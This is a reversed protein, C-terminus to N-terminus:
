AAPIVWTAWDECHDFAPLEGRRTKNRYVPYHWGLLMPYERQIRGGWGYLRGTM